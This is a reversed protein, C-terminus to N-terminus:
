IRIFLALFTRMFGNLFEGMATDHDLYKGLKKLYGKTYAAYAIIYGGAKAFGTLALILSDVYAGYVIAIIACPLGVLSGTVFMGFVNRWYLRKYGYAHMDNEVAQRVSKPASNWKEGRWQAYKDATRPDDGFALRVIFDLREPEIAKVARNLFYQGHGTALGFIGALAALAWADQTIAYTSYVFFSICLLRELWENVYPPAGGDIRALWGGILCLTLIFLFTM